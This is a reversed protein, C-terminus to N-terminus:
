AAVPQQHLRVPLRAAVNPGPRALSKSVTKVTMFREPATAVEPNVPVGSRQIESLVNSRTNLETTIVVVRPTTDTGTVRFQPQGTCLPLHTVKNGDRLPMFWPVFPAAGAEVDLLEEDRSKAFSENWLLVMDRADIRATAEHGDVVVTIEDREADAIVEDTLADGNVPVEVVAHLVRGAVPLQEQLGTLELSQISFAQPIRFEEREILEAVFTWTGAVSGAADMNNGFLGNAAMRLELETQHQLLALPFGWDDPEIGMPNYFPIEYVLRVSTGAEAVTIAGGGGHARPRRGKAFHLAKQLISGARSPLEILPWQRGPVRLHIADVIDHAHNESLAQNGAGADAAMTGRFIGVIRRLYTSGGPVRKIPQIRDLRVRVTQGFAFTANEVALNVRQPLAM